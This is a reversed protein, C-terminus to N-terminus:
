RSIEIRADPYKLCTNIYKELWEIFLDYTGWKNEPEFKRFREPNSKLLKLGDYLPSILQSTVTIGNEDPRWIYKYIGAEFAVKGLNHTINTDFVCMEEGFFEGCHPCKQREYLSIDLSV